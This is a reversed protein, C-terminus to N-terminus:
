STAVDAPEHLLPVRLAARVVTPIILPGHWHLWWCLRARDSMVDSGASLDVKAQAQVYTMDAAIVTVKM